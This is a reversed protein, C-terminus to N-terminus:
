GDRLRVDRVSGRRTTWSIVGVNKQKKKVNRSFLSGSFTSGFISDFRNFFFLKIINVKIWNLNLDHFQIEGKKEFPFIVSKPIRFTLRLGGLCPPEWLTFNRLM